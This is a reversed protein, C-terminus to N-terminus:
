IKQSKSKRSATKILESLSNLDNKLDKLNPRNRRKVQELFKDKKVILKKSDLVRSDNDSDISVSLNENLLLQNNELKKVESASTFIGDQIKMKGIDDAFKDINIKDSIEVYNNKM